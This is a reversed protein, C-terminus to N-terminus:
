AKSSYLAEHESWDLEGDKRQLSFGCFECVVWEALEVDDQGWSPAPIPAHGDGPAPKAVKTFHVLYEQGEEFYETAKDNLTGLTIEGWPTASAWQRNERGRCVAGLKISSASPQNDYREVKQVFFKAVVSM